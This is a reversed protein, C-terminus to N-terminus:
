IVCCPTPYTGDGMQVFIATVHFLENLFHNQTVLEPKNQVAIWKQVYRGLQLALV